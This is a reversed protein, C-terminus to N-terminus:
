VDPLKENHQIWQAQQEANWKNWGTKGAVPSYDYPDHGDLRATIHDLLANFFYGWGWRNQFQWVHATEHILISRDDAYKSGILINSGFVWAGMGIQATWHRDHIRIVSYDVQDGYVGKLTEIEENTLLRSKGM